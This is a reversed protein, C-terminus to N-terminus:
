ATEHEMGCHDFRHVINYSLKIPIDVFWLKEKVFSSGFAIIRQCIGSSEELSVIGAEPIERMTIVPELSPLSTSRMTAWARWAMVRSVTSL